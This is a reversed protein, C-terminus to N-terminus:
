TELLKYVNMKELWIISRVLISTRPVAAPNSAYGLKGKHYLNCVIQKKQDSKKKKWTQYPIRWM